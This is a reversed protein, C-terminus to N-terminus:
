RAPALLTLELDVPVATPAGDLTGPKFRYQGVAELVHKDMEPTLSRLIKLECPKGTADVLMEIMVKRDFAFGNHNFSPDAEVAVTYVLKPATVGTSTRFSASTADAASSGFDAPQTISSTQTQAPSNAQAHLLMPTLALTAVIVKRMFTRKLPLLVWWWLLGLNIRNDINKNRNLNGAGPQSKRGLGAIAAGESRLLLDFSSEDVM